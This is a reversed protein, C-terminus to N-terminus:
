FRILVWHPIYGCGAAAPGIEPLQTDDPFQKRRIRSYCHIRLGFKYLNLTGMFRNCPISEQAPAPGTRRIPNDYLSAISEM